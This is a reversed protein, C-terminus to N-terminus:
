FYPTEIELIETRILAFHATFRCGCGCIYDDKKDRNNSTSDLYVLEPQATSGCNPCKIRPDNMQAQWEKAIQQATKM